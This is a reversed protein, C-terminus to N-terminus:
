LDVIFQVLSETELIDHEARMQATKIVEESVRDYKLIQGRMAYGGDAKFHHPDPKYGTIENFRKDNQDVTKQSNDCYSCSKIYKEFRTCCSQQLM